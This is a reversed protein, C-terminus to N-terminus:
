IWTWDKPLVKEQTTSKSGTAEYWSAMLEPQGVQPPALIQSHPCTYWDWEEMIFNRDRSSQQRSRNNWKLAQFLHSELERMGEANILPFNGFFSIGENVIQNGQFVYFVGYLVSLASYIDWENRKNILRWFWKKQTGIILNTAM